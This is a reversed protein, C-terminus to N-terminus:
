EEAPALQLLTGITRVEDLVMTRSGHRGKAYAEAQDAYHPSFVNGSQGTPLSNWWHDPDAFDVVVRLAPGSVVPYVGSDTVQYEMKLPVDNGGTVAFPGVNFLKDFPAQRGIPHVHTLTHVDAWHWTAPDPGLQAM